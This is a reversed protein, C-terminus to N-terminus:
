AESFLWQHVQKRTFRKSGNFFYEGDHSWPKSVADDRLFEWTFNMARSPWDEATVNEGHEKLKNQIYMWFVDETKTHNYVFPRVRENYADRIADWRAANLPRAGPRYRRAFIPKKEVDEDGEPEEAEETACPPEVESAPTKRRIRRPPESGDTEPNPWEAGEECPEEECPKARKGAKAKAKPKTATKAEAIEALKSGGTKAAETRGGRAPKSGGHKAANGRGRAPKSGDDDKVAKSGAKASKGRMGGEKATKSGDRPGTANKGSKGCGTRSAAATEVSKSRFSMMRSLLRKKSMGRRFHSGPGNKRKGAPKSVEADNEANKDKKGASLALQDKRTVVRAAQTELNDMGGAFAADNGIAGASASAPPSARLSSLTARLTDPDVGALQTLGHRAWQQRKKDASEQLPTGRPKKPTSLDVDPYTSPPPGPEVREAEESPFGQESVSATDLQTSEAAPAPAPKAPEASEPPEDQLARAAERAEQKKKFHVKLAEEDLPFGLAKDLFAKPPAKLCDLRSRHGDSRQRDAKQLGERLEEDGMACDDLPKRSGSKSKELACRGSALRTIKIETERSEVNCDEDEEIQSKYFAAFADKIADIPKSIRGQRAMEMTLPRLLQKNLKISPLSAVIHKRKKVDEVLLKLKRGARRLYAVEGWMAVCADFTIDGM